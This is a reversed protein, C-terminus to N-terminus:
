CILVKSNVRYGRSVSELSFKEVDRPTKIKKLVTQTEWLATPPPVLSGRAASGHLEHRFDLKVAVTVVVIHRSWLAFNDFPMKQSIVFKFAHTM